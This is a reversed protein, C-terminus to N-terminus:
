GQAPAVDLEVRGTKPASSERWAVEVRLGVLKMLAALHREISRRAELEYREANHEFLRAAEQQASEILQKQTNANMQIVDLLGLVRGAQIDYPTVNTLRLAGEVAPLTMRFRDVGLEEVDSDRLVGLDVAYQKEFHFIMAVKAQSLLIPPLWSWGRTSTAIEKAHVELGVLKGVSRVREVVSVHQVTEAISQGGKRRVLWVLVLVGVAGVGLGIGLITLDSM